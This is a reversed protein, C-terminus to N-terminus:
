SLEPIFGTNTVKKVSSLITEKCDSQKAWQAINKNGGTKLLYFNVQEAYKKILSKLGESSAQNKWIMQLDINQGYHKSLCALTYTNINAWYGNFLPRTLKTTEKFLIAKAIMEKYNTQDPEKLSEGQKPSYDKMFESFATQGGKSVWDPKMDWTMVYKVMDTKTIKQAPPILRKLKKIGAPTKGERELMVNYSGRSREYFWRSMGDELYTSNSLKELALHFPSNAALDSQSVANQSNAYKAINAVLEQEDNDNAKNLVIIKAPVRVNTLDTDKFKKKTFFISATTQGGNVIQMGKLMGIGPIGTSGAEISIEDAVIVIGNNYAMFHEPNSRLTDRIGKNVKGTQNLFSRVNAELIRAGYREYLYRLVDGPIATMAYDYDTAQGPVWVCPLPENWAQTFNVILEDRPKGSQWHNFLRELDMVELKITKGDHEKPKFERNKAVCDTILYIRIQDLRYFKQKIIESFRLVDSNAPLKGELKGTAALTLFKYCNQLSKTIETNNLPTIESVEQYLSVFVDLEENDESFSYASVRINANGIKAKYNLFQPSDYTMGVEAMHEVMTKVFIAEEYPANFPDGTLQSQFQDKIDQRLKDLFEILEM